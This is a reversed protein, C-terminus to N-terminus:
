IALPPARAAGQANDVNWPGPVPLPTHCHPPHYTFFAQKIQYLFKTQGIIM